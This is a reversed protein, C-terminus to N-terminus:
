CAMASTAHNNACVCVVHAIRAEVDRRTQNCAYQMSTLYKNMKNKEDQWRVGTKIERAITRLDSQLEDMRLLGYWISFLNEIFTTGKYVPKHTHMPEPWVVNMNVGRIDPKLDLCGDYGAGRPGDAADDEFAREDDYYAEHTIHMPAHDISLALVRACPMCKHMDRATIM